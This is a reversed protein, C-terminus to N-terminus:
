PLVESHIYTLPFIQGECLLELREWDGAFHTSVKYQCQGTPLTGCQAQISLTGCDDYSYSSDDAPCAREAINGIQGCGLIQGAETIEFREASTHWTNALQANAQALFALFLTVAFVFTALVLNIHKSM